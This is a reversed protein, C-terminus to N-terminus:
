AANHKRGRVLGFKKGNRESRRAQAVCNIRPPEPRQWDFVLFAHQSYGRMGNELWEM